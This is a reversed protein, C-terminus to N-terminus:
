KGFQLQFTDYLLVFRDMSGRKELITKLGVFYAPKEGYESNTSAEWTKFLVPKCYKLKIMLNVISTKTAEDAGLRQQTAVYVNPGPNNLRIQTAYLAVCSAFLGMLCPSFQLTEENINKWLPQKTQRIIGEFQPRLATLIANAAQVMSQVIQPKIQIFDGFQLQWSLSAIYKPLYEQFQSKEKVYQPLQLKIASSIKRLEEAIIETEQKKYELYYLCIIAQKTYLPISVPWSTQKYQTKLSSEAADFISTSFNKGLIKQLANYKAYEEIVELDLNTKAQNIKSEFEKINKDLGSTLPRAENYWKICKLYFSSQNGKIPSSDQADNAFDSFNDATRIGNFTQIVAGNLNLGSIIDTVDSPIIRISSDYEFSYQAMKEYANEVDKKIDNLKDTPLTTAKSIAFSTTTQSGYVLELMKTTFTLTAQYLSTGQDSFLRTEDEKKKLLGDVTEISDRQTRIYRDLFEIVRSARKRELDLVEQDANTTGDQLKTVDENLNGAIARLLHVNPDELQKKSVEEIKKQWTYSFPQKSPDFRDNDTMYGDARPFFAQFEEDMEAPTQKTKVLDSAVSRQM